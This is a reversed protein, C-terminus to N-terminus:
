EGVRNSNDVQLDGSLLLVCGSMRVSFGDLSRRQICVSSPPTESYRGHLANKNDARSRPLVGERLESHHTHIHTHTHTYTHTYTHTHSLSWFNTAFSLLSPHNSRSLYLYLSPPIDEITTHLHTSPSLSISIYIYQHLPWQPASCKYGLVSIFYERSAGANLLDGNMELPLSEEPPHDLPGEGAFYLSLSLSLSPSLPLSLSLSHSHTLISTVAILLLPLSSASGTNKKRECFQVFGHSDLCSSYQPPYEWSFSPIFLSPVLYPLAPHFTRCPPLPHTLSVSRDEVFVFRNKTRFYFILEWLLILWRHWSNSVQFNDVSPVCFSYCSCNPPYAWWEGLGHQIRQVHYEDTEHLDESPEGEQVFRYQSRRTHAHTHTHTHTHTHLLCSFFPIFTQSFSFCKFLMYFLLWLCWASVCVRSRYTRISVFWWEWSFLQRNKCLFDHTKEAPLRAVSSRRPGGPHSPM